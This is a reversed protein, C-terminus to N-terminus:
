KRKQKLQQWKKVESYYQRLGYFALLLAEAVDDKKGSKLYEKIDCQFLNEAQIVSEKKDSTLKLDNKWEQPRPTYFAIPNLLSYQGQYVGLSHGFVFSSSEYEGTRAQVKEVTYIIHNNIYPLFIDRLATYDTWTRQKYAMDYMGTEKNLKPKIRKSTNESLYPAKALYIINLCDDVIAIAGNKTGPDVGISLLKKTKAVM